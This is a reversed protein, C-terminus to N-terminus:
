FLHKLSILPMTQKTKFTKVKPKKCIVVIKKPPWGFLGACGTVMGSKDIYKQAKIDMDTHRQGQRQAHAWTKTDKHYIELARGFCEAGGGGTWGQRQTDSPAPFLHPPFCSRMDEFVVKM